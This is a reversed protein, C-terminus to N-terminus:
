GSSAAMTSRYAALIPPPGPGQGIPIELSADVARELLSVSVDRYRNVDLFAVHDTLLPVTCPLSMSRCRHGRRCRELEPKVMYLARPLLNSRLPRRLRRRAPLFGCQAPRDGMRATPHRVRETNRPRRSCATCAPHVYNILQRAPSRRRGQRQRACIMSSRGAPTAAWWRPSPLRRSGRQFQLACGRGAGSTPWTALVPM